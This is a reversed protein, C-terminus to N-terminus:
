DSEDYDVDMAAGDEVRINEVGAYPVKDKMWRGWLNDVRCLGSATASALLGCSGLGNGNNWAVRQIGVQWPWAGTGGAPAPKSGSKKSSQSAAGPREPMEQPLFHELMRYEGTKRSYDMKYIRHVFFPVSGGRRTTRLTNTTACVGDASAAALQPHYESTSISWVPGQPDMLTHGRGLMSPSASYSKIINEHDITILGCAYPSYAVTNIVDRTRNMVSGHGERIDTICEVGDYGGSAIITPSGDKRVAGSPWSPPAKIWCLARIASQHISLYHTPLLDTITSDICEIAERLASGINYVAIIGNTTGIAVVESNAWDFAWCSTEELEIRLLPDPLKVASFGDSRHQQQLCVDAPDPIAYVSFSGDEFTGGLLGLKCPKIQDNHLDHSPLPCWKLEYAPGSDQCIVMECRVTPANDPTSPDLQSAPGFSWIQICAASPRSVRVGIEPFHASSPFPAVALYQKYGRGQRDDAHIPCWDIGWVPAGANFVISENNDQFFTSMNLGDFVKMDHKKQDGFPGFYCQVLPPPRFEGEDTTRSDTPLYPAAEELSLLSWGNMVGVDHYVRPRRKADDMESDDETKGTYAEKYWGRDEVLQWIPGNGVNYGWAKQVRDTVKPSSTFGNTWITTSNSEFLKPCSTLREVRTTADTFLPLARHRHHVSPTPLAYQQRKATRAVLSPHGVTATIKAKTGKPKTTKTAKGKGKGKPTSPPGTADYKADEDEEFEGDEGEDDEDEATPKSLEFDSESDVCEEEVAAASSRSPGPAAEDDDNDDIAFGALSAYNPKSKRPRLQRTM